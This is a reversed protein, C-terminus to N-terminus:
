QAAGQENSKNAISTVQQVCVPEASAECWAETAGVEMRLGAASNILAGMVGVPDCEWESSDYYLYESGDPDCLRVYEGSTTALSESAYVGSRLSWGDALAVVVEGESALLADEFASGEGMRLGAAASMLASMVGVPDCEWETSDRRVFESGDPRCLRLYEGSLRAGDRDPDHVGSRLSWGDALM